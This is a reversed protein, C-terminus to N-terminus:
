LICFHTFLSMPSIHADAAAEPASPLSGIILELLHQELVPMVQALGESTTTNLLTNIAHLQTKRITQMRVERVANNNM